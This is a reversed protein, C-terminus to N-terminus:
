THTLSDLIQLCAVALSLQKVTAQIERVQDRNVPLNAYNKKITKSISESTPGPRVFSNVGCLEHGHSVAVALRPSRSPRAAPALTVARHCVKGVQVQLATSVRARGSERAPLRPMRPITSFSIMMIVIQRSSFMLTLMM